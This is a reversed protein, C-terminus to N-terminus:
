IRWIKVIKDLEYLLIFLVYTFILLHLHTYFCNLTFFSTYIVISIFKNLFLSFMQRLCVRLGKVPHLFCFAQFLVLSFYIGSSFLCFKASVSLPDYNNCDLPITLLIRLCYPHMKCHYHFHNYHFHHSNYLLFISATTRLHEEFCTTKFVECIEYFFVQTPIEKFSNWCLGLAQLKILFQSWCRHKGTFNAFNKLVSKKCFM